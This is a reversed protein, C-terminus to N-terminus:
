RGIFKYLQRLDFTHIIHEQKSQHVVNWLNTVRVALKWIEKDWNINNITDFKQAMNDQMVYSVQKM